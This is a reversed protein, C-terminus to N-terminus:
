RIGAIKGIPINIMGTLKKSDFNGYEATVSAHIDNLNPRATIFHVVGSTANRGYLTGQPGRLVEIRELDFYETEFLRTSTLPMDNFQIVTATNCSSVVSFVGLVGSPS